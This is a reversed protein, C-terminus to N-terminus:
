LPGLVLRVGLTLMSWHISFLTTADSQTNTGSEGAKLTPSDSSQITPRPTPLTTMAAGEVANLLFSSFYWESFNQEVSTEAVVSVDLILNSTVSDMKLNLDVMSKKEPSNHSVGAVFYAQKCIFVEKAGGSSTADKFPDITETPLIADVTFSGDLRVLFESFPDGHATLTLDHDKLAEFDFPINPDLVQNGISITVNYNAIPGGGLQTYNGINFNTVVAEKGAGCGVVGYPLAGVLPVLLATAVLLKFIKPM